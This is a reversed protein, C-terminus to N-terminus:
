FFSSALDHSSAAADAFGSSTIKVFIGPDADDAGLWARRPISARSLTAPTKGQSGSVAECIRCWGMEEQGM